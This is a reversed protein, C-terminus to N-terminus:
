HSALANVTHLKGSTISHFTPFVRNDNSIHLQQMASLWITPVFCLSVIATANEKNKNTSRTLTCKCMHLPPSQASSTLLTQQLKATNLTGNCDWSKQHVPSPRQPTWPLLNPQSMPQVKLRLQLQATLWREPQCFAPVTSFLPFKNCLLWFSM